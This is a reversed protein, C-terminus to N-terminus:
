YMKYTIHLSTFVIILLFAIVDLRRKCNVELLETMISFEKGM